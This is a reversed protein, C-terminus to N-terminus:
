FGLQKYLIKLFNKIRILILINKVKLSKYFSKIILLSEHSEKIEIRNVKIPMSSLETFFINVVGGHRGSGDIGINKVLSRGPYLTLMEKLFTSAYWQIAWSDVLGRTQMKLMQLFPYGGGFDFQSTLKRKKIEKLLKNSDKEFFNWARKWTGWGWCDAGRLFFTEPLQHKVPFIYGHISAVKDESEYIQLASNMYDLFFPSVVLDDELVIVKGYRNIVETVGEIISKALGFNKTKEIIEVDVFGLITRIYKRVSEVEKKDKDSKFGDSYIILKSEKALINKQLAEVVQCTHCPRNYVFLIIPALSM